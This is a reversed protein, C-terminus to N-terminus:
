LKGAKLTGNGVRRHGATKLGCVNIVCYRIFLYLAGFFIILASITLNDIYM